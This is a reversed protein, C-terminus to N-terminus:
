LEGEARVTSPIGTVESVNVFHSGKSQLADIIQTVKDLPVSNDMDVNSVKDTQTDPISTRIYEASVSPSSANYVVLEFWIFQGEHYKNYRDPYSFDSLIGSRSLLSYINEDTSGYPARFSKSDLNGALDVAKKGDEVERLQETYDSIGTLRRYSYTSSGIDVNEGFSSVCQPYKEALVGSFFIVAHVREKSLIDALGNCWDPMNENDNVINFSLLVSAGKPPQLFPPLAIIVGVAIVVITATIGGAVIKAM